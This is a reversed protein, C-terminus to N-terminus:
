IAKHEVQEKNKLRFGFASSALTMTGLATAPLSLFPAIAAAVLVGATLMLRLAYQSVAYLAAYDKGMDVSRAISREMMAVKVASVATGLFLSMVFRSPNDFRYFFRTVILGIAALAVFQLIMSAILSKGADSVSTM